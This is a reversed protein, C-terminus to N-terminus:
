SIPCAASGPLDEIPPATVAALYRRVSYALVQKADTPIVREHFAGYIRDFAWPHLIEAIRRITAADLPILNPYSRMFSLRQDPTVQLIDGSLIAGKGGGGAAWHLVTGGAFHGPCNILNLGPAIAHTKGSWFQILPDPRMVWQRDAAHLLIPADFEQAWEVMASYYHPHSIAIARIGGLARLIEIAADDIFPICDWLVNGAPHRVLLARQGIAFQPVLGIGLLGPEMQRFHCFHTRRLRALTTWGQGLPGIYQREDQCIPCHEPPADSPPYQTGCTTCIFATM